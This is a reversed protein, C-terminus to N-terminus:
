CRSDYTAPDYVLRITGQRDDQNLQELEDQLHKVREQIRSTEHYSYTQNQLRNIERELRERYEQVTENQFHREIRKDFERRIPIHWCGLGFAIGLLVSIMLIIFGFFIHFSDDCLSM